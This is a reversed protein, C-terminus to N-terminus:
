RRRENLHGSLETVCKLQVEISRLMNAVDGLQYLRDAPYMDEHHEEDLYDYADQIVRAFDEFAEKWQEETFSDADQWIDESFREGNTIILTANM